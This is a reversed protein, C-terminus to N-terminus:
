YTIKPVVGPRDVKEGPISDWGNQPAVKISDPVPKNQLIESFEPKDSSFKVYYRGDPIICEHCSGEGHYVINGYTFDYKVIELASSTYFKKSTIAITYKPFKDLSNNRKCSHIFIYIVFIVAFIGLLIKGWEKVKNWNM